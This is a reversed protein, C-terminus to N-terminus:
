SENKELEKALKMFSKAFKIAELAVERDFKVDLYRSGIYAQELATIISINDKYVKMMGKGKYLKDVDKFLVSLYQTRPFDDTKLAILYKLILQLMQEVHFLCLDYYQKDLDTKAVDLFRKARDKLFEFM